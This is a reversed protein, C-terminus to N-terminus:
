ADDQGADDKEATDTTNCVCSSEDYVYSGIHGAKIAPDCWIKQGMERVRWCFSLDEGLNLYYSFPPGYQDWVAKLLPVSTMVLGFGCADVEFLRDHPYLLYPIPKIYEGHVPDTRREQRRYLVPETPLVRKWYPACVMNHGAAIHESLRLMTDPEFTMDSDIWLVADLNRLIAVSAIENRADHILTCETIVTYTDPTRHMAELCRLFRTPVTQMCPVAILTKITDSETRNSIPVTNKPGYWSRVVRCAAYFRTEHPLQYSQYPTKPFYM